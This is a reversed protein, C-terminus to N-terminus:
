EAPQGFRPITEFSHVPPPSSVTWELTTAGPGWYNAETRRGASFTRWVVILFFVAGAFGLYAGISSVVNWGHFSDPYDPIRRPM